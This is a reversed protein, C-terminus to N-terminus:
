ISLFLQTLYPEQAKVTQARPSSVHMTDEMLPLAWDAASKGRFTIYLVEWPWRWFEWTSKHAMSSILGKM